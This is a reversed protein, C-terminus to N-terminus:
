IAYLDCQNQKQKDAHRYNEFLSGWPSPHHPTDQTRLPTHIKAIKAKKERRLAIIHLEGAYELFFLPFAYPYFRLRM